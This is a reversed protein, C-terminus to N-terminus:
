WGMVRAILQSHYINSVRKLILTHSAPITITTNAAVITGSSNTKRVQTDIRLNIATSENAIITITAGSVTGHGSTTLTITNNTTYNQVVADYVDIDYFNSAAATHYAAFTGFPLNVMGDNGAYYKAYGVDYGVVLTRSTIGCSPLNMNHEGSAVETNVYATSSYNKFSMTTPSIYFGTESVGEAKDYFALVREEFSFDFRGDWIDETAEDNAVIAVGQATGNISGGYMRLKFSYPDATNDGDKHIFNNHMYNRLVNANVTRATTVTGANLEALTMLSYTTNTWPVNVVMQGASNLQVGYTRSATATVTNAAVTQVTDSGLKVIGSVTSKATTLNGSHWLERWTGTVTDWNVRFSLREQSGGTAIQIRRTSTESITLIGSAYSSSIYSPRNTSGTGLTYFGNDRLRSSNADSNHDLKIGLGYDRFNGWDFAQKWQSSDGHNLTSIGGNYLALQFGNSAYTRLLYARQSTEGNFGIVVHGEGATTIMTGGGVLTSPADPTTVQFIWYGSTTKNGSLGVQASDSTIYNTAGVGSGGGNPLTGMTVSFGSATQSIAQVYNGTGITTIVQSIENNTNIHIGNGASYQTNVWPVNVVMQGSSNVQVGYTKGATTSVSNAAVSQVTDSFLKRGGVVSSTALPVSTLYGASAHNGWGFASDWNSVKTSTIGDLVTKNSHTHSNSVVTTLGLDSLVQANTRTSILKTTTNYTLLTGTANPVNAVKISGDVDMNTNVPINGAM